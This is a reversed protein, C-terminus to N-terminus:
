PICLLGRSSSSAFLQVWSAPTCKAPIIGPTKNTNTNSSAYKPNRPHAGKVRTNYCLGGPGRLLPPEPHNDPINYIIGRHTHQHRQSANDDTSVPFSVQALPTSYSSMTCHNCMGTRLSSHPFLAGPLRLNSTAMPSRALTMPSASCVCLKRQGSQPICCSCHRASNSWSPRIALSNSTVPMHGQHWNSINM